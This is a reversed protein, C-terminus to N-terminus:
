IRDLLQHCLAHFADVEAPDVNEPLPPPKHSANARNGIRERVANAFPMGAWNLLNEVHDASNLDETRILHVPVDPHTQSFRRMRAEVEYWHWLLEFFEHSFREACESDDWPRILNRAWDHRFRYRPRKPRASSALERRVALRRHYRSAAVANPDRVLHIVRLKSGFVEAALDAFCKIFFHNTEVYWRQGRTAWYIHPLKRQFFVRRMPQEDLENYAQLVEGHMVPHPEHRAACEPVADFIRELSNTGSRGTSAVFTFSEVNRALWQGATRASAATVPNVKLPRIIDKLMTYTEAAEPPNYLPM